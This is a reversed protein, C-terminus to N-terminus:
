GDFRVFSQLSAGEVDRINTYGLSEYLRRQSEDDDTLVVKQRVHAYRELCTSLLRSAIHRRQADPHVLVDQLYFITADDSIGRALGVLRGADRATVVISSQSVARRLTAPDRTYASWGVSDYLALLEELDVEGGAVTRIDVVM